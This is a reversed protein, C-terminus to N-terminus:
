VVPTIVITKYLTDKFRDKIYIYLLKLKLLIVKIYIYIYYFKSKTLRHGSAM